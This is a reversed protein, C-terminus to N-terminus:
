VGEESVREVAPRVTAAPGKKVSVGVVAQPPPLAATSRREVVPAQTEAPSEVEVFQELGLTLAREVTRIEREAAERDRRHPLRDRLEALRKKAKRVFFGRITGEASIRRVLMSDEFGSADVLTLSRFRDEVSRAVAELDSCFERVGTLTCRAVVDDGARALLAARLADADHVSEKALDIREDAVVGRSVPTREFVVGGDDSLEAVLLNKRGLDGPRFGQGELPGCYAAAGRDFRFEGGGYVGGLAIYDLGSARLAELPFTWASPREDAGEAGSVAGHLVGVHFGPDDTRAFGRFPVPTRGPRYAVGYFRVPVGRVEVVVPSGPAHEALVTAGAFKESRWVGGQALADHFGPLVVVGVGGAALRAFAGRALAFSEADPRSSDFLDGAVVVVDIAHRADLAFDAAARFSEAADRRRREARDGAYAHASGLRVDALQLMRLRM